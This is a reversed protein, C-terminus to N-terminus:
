AKGAAAPMKGAVPIRKSQTQESKPIRITIVGDKMEAAAHEADTGQPLTFSRTFSGYAREACHFMTDEAEKAERKGSIALRNGALNVEIDEERVGPVDAKILLADKTERVDFDPEFRAVREEAPWLRRLERFPEWRMFERLPDRRTFERMAEFPDWNM